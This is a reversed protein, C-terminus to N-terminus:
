NWKPGYFYLSYNKLSNAFVSLMEHFRKSPDSFDSSIVFKRAFRTKSTNQNKNSWRVIWAQMKQICRSLYLSTITNIMRKSYCLLYTNHFQFDIRINDMRKYLLPGIERRDERRQAIEKLLHHVLSTDVILLCTAM